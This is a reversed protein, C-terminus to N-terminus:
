GTDISIRRQYPSDSTEFSACASHRDTDDEREQSERPPAFVKYGASASRAQFQTHYYVGDSDNNSSGDPDASGGGIDSKGMRGYQRQM